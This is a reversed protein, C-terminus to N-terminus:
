AGLFCHSAEALGSQPLLKNSPDWVASCGETAGAPHQLTPPRTSDKYRHQLDGPVMLVSRCGWVAEHESINAHM